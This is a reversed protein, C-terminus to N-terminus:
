AERGGSGGGGNGNGGFWGRMRGTIGSTDGRNAGSGGSSRRRSYEPQTYRSARPSESPLRHPNSRSGDHTPSSPFQNQSHRPEEGPSRPVNGQGEKPMIGQRCHPCTDHERLWAGVCQDHFWHRCPLRTVLEGLIVEDMCVSCEAKGNEGMMSTNVQVKPLAAIAAPSAPGPANGGAHQEMLQSIVRDLAEQTYVADGSAANAPNLFSTFLSQFPSAPAGNGPRPPGQHVDGLHQFIIGLVGHLDDVPGVQPQANNADRPWLGPLEHYTDRGGMGQQAPHGLGSREPGEQLPSGPYSRDSPRSFRGNAGRLPGRVNGAQQPALMGQLMSQFDGIIPTAPLNGRTTGGGSRPTSSRYTMRRSYTISNPGSSWEVHDIDGDDPDPDHGQGAWPSHDLWANPAHSAVPGNNNNDDDNIGRPDNDREVVGAAIAVGSMIAVGMMGEKTVKDDILGRLSGAQLNAPEHDLLLDNYRRAEAYNGLKYHGLGLYYLCERRREPSTRFIESLLRVGEQQEQRVNSKILGWAYNFKTQVGVYEGEKEYQSRLVQLEAPKLPSDADAADPLAFIM